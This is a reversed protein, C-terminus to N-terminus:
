DVEILIGIDNIGKLSEDPMKHIVKFTYTGARAPVRGLSLPIQYLGAWGAGNWQGDGDALIFNLNFHRWRTSDPMNHQLIANFDQYPYNSQNRLLFTIEANGSISDPIHLHLAVTDDKGWREQPFHHYAHYTIHDTCSIWLMSILILCISKHPKM